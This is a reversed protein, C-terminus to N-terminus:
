PKLSDFASKIDPPAALVIAQYAQLVVLEMQEQTTCQSLDVQDPLDRLAQKCDEIAGALPEPMQDVVITTGKYIASAQMGDLVQMIPFRLARAKSLTLAVLEAHTPPPPPEPPQPPPPMDEFVFVGDAFRARKGVPIEPPEVDVCGFPLLYHDPTKPDADARAEDVFYGEADIQSVIKFM